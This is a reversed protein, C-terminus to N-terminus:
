DYGINELVGLEYCVGGEVGLEGWGLRCWVHVYLSFVIFCPHFILM